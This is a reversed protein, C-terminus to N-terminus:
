PLVRVESADAVFGYATTGTIQCVVEVRDGERVSKIKTVDPFACECGDDGYDSAKGFKIRGGDGIKLFPLPRKGLPLKVPELVVKHALGVIVVHLGKYRKEAAKRDSKHAAILEEVSVREPESTSTTTSTTATTKAKPLYCGLPTITLAILFVIKFPKM